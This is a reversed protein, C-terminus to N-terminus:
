QIVNKNSMCSSFISLPILSPKPPPTTTPGGQKESSSDAADHHDLASFAGRNLLRFDARRPLDQSGFCASQIGKYTDSEGLQKRHPSYRSEESKVSRTGCSAPGFEPSTKIPKNHQLLRWTLMSSPTRYLKWPRTNGSTTDDARDKRITSAEQLRCIMWL